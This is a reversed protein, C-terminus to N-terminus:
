EFTVPQGTSELVLRWLPGYPDIMKRKGAISEMPIHCMSGKISGVIMETRGAMAAHVADHGLSMCYISDKANTPVSRISYSPNFYKISVEVENKKFYTEIKDKLFLGIDGHLKNGSADCIGQTVDDMLDQGAGEAVAIVAHRRRKIRELLYPLFGHEGILKFPQEPILVLNVDSMALAAHAAIFGSDRGMLKVLGIGNPTGKSEVHACRLIERAADVATQFGFSEDIIVIDNDITKPVGVVAIKLGRKETEEAIQLAGRMTGDGGVVYLQNIAMRELCDVIEPIDQPGRSSGLATGGLDQWGDVMEPTLELAEHGYSAIFGQYGYRFGYIRSVSYNKYLGLVVSRIVDNLGPCLGGCTVIGARTKSPDFYIKERPGALEYFLRDGKDTDNCYGQCEGAENKGCFVNQQLVKSEECIFLQEKHEIAHRHKKIPSDIRCPGLQKVPVAKNQIIEAM